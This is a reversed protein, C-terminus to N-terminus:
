SRTNIKNSKMKRIGKSRERERGKAMTNESKKKICTKTENSEMEQRHYLAGNTFNNAFHLFLHHAINKVQTKMKSRKKKVVSIHRHRTNKSNADHRCM